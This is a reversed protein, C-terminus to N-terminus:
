FTHLIKKELGELVVEEEDAVSMFGTRLALNREFEIDSILKEIVRYIKHLREEVAQRSSTTVIGAEILALKKQRCDIIGYGTVTLAPDIGLIRM